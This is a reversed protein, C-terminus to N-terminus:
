TNLAPAIPDSFECVYAAFLNGIGATGAVSDAGYYVTCPLSEPDLTTGPTFTLGAPIVGGLAGGSSPRTANYTSRVYYFNNPFKKVDIDVYISEQTTLAKKFALDPNISGGFWANGICSDESQAVQALTTPGADAYDYNVLFFVSGATTTSCSPVYIYRLARWRFKSYQKAIGSLWPYSQPVGPNCVDGGAFFIGASGNSTHVLEYNQVIFTKGVGSQLPLYSKAGAMAGGYAAPASPTKYRVMQQQQKAQTKRKPPNNNKPRKPAMNQIPDRLCSVPSNM